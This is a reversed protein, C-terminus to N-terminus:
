RGVYEERLIGMVVVDLWRGDIRAAQRLVGERVFGIKEYLRIAMTNTSFVHLFVRQLGLSKFACDLLLHVAETGYGHGREDPEGIRIQLQASRHIDHIGHLQCSGILKGSDRLRIAFIKVDPRRQVADFWAQHEEPTVSKYPANFVVQERDNIWRFLVPLDDATLATLLLHKSTLAPHEMPALRERGHPELDAGCARGWQEAFGKVIAEPMGAPLAEAYVRNLRM